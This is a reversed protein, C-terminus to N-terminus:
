NTVVFRGGDRDWAIKIKNTSADFRVLTLRSRAVRRLDQTMTGPSTSAAGIFVYFSASPSFVEYEQGMMECAYLPPLVTWQDNIDIDQAVGFALPRTENNFIALEDQGLWSTPEQRDFTGLRFDYLYGLEVFRRFSGVFIPRGEALQSVSAYVSTGTQNWSLFNHSFPKALGGWVSSWCGPPAQQALLVAQQSEYLETLTTPDLDIQVQYTVQSSSAAALALLVGVVVGIYARDM